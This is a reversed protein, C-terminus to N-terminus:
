AAAEETESGVAPRARIAGEVKKPDTRLQKVIEGVPVAKDVLDWVKRNFEREATWQSFQKATAAEDAKLMKAAQAPSVGQQWLEEATEKCPGADKKARKSKEEIAQCARDAASEGEDLEALRPDVWDRGDMGGPTSIVSGPADLERQVLHVLLNGKRDKFGYMRAIQAHQMYPMAALEKISELPKLERRQPGDLVRRIGVVADWFSDQPHAGPAPNTAEFVDAEKTLRAVADHLMRLDAPIDGNEFAEVLTEVADWYVDDPNQRNDDEAWQDHTEIFNRAVKTLQESRRSM